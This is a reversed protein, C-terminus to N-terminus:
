GAVQRRRLCLLVTLWALLPWRAAAPRGSVACGGRAELAREPAVAAIPDHSDGCTASWRSIDPNACGDSWAGGGAEPRMPFSGCDSTPAWRGRDHCPTLDLGSARELWDTAPALLSYHGGSGCAGGYSTVGAVRWTGDPLRVFVPGGSDGTCTDKGDGGILADTETLAVIPMSVQRKPGAGLADDAEGFGAAVVETGPALVAVECGALLPVIPVGAVAQSLRCFGLDKGLEHAEPHSRCSKVDATIRPWRFDDGFVAEVPELGVCHAALVVLEPHVLTGTCGGLYVVSPWACSATPQGGYIAQHTTALTEPENGCGALLVVFAISTWNARVNSLVRSALPLGARKDWM